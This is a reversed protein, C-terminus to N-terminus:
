VGAPTVTIEDETVTETEFLDGETGDELLDYVPITIKEVPPTTTATRAMWGELKFAFMWRLQRQDTAHELVSLDRSEEMTTFVLQNGYPFPHTVDLYTSWGEGMALLLQDALAQLDELNRAWLDVQYTLNVAQPWPAGMIKGTGVHTYLMRHGCIQYRTRDIALGTRSVSGWPLPYVKNSENRQHAPLTQKTRNALKEQLRAFAREPTAFVYEIPKGNYLTNARVWDVVAKGYNRYLQVGADLAM